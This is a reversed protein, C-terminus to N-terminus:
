KGDTVPQQRSYRLASTALPSCTTRSPGTWQSRVLRLRTRCHVAAQGHWHGMIFDGGSFDGEASLKGAFIREARRNGARSPNKGTFQRGLSVKALPVIRYHPLSVIPGAINQYPTVDFKHNDRGPPNKM